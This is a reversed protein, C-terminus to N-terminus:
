PLVSREASRSAASRLPLALASSRVPPKKKLLDKQRDEIRLLETKIALFELHTKDSEAKSNGHGNATGNLGHEMDALCLRRLSHQLM